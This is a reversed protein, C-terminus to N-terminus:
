TNQCQWWVSNPFPNLTLRQSLHLHPSFHGQGRREAPFSSNGRPLFPRACVARLASQCHGPNWGPGPCEARPWAPRPCWGVKTQVGDKSVLLGPATSTNERRLGRRVCSHEGSSEREGETSDRAEHHPSTNSCQAWMQQVKLIFNSEEVCFWSTARRQQSLDSGWSETAM